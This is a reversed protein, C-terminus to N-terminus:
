DVVGTHRLQWLFGLPLPEPAGLHTLVDVHQSATGPSAAGEGFRARHTEGM